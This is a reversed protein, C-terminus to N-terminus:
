DSEESEPKFGIDGSKEKLKREINEYRQRANSTVSAPTDDIAALFHDM